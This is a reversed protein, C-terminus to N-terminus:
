KGLLWALQLIRVASGSLFGYGSSNESTITSETTWTWIGGSLTGISVISKSMIILSGVAIRTTTDSCSVATLYGIGSSDSTVETEATWTWNGGSLTGVTTIGQSNGDYGVAVCTTSDPCSVSYLYGNGSGDSTIPSEASWTWTGGSFTGDSTIAQGNGDYGVVVCDTSDSCSIADLTDTSSGDTTLAAEPTWSWNGGSLTGITTIGLGNDDNGTGFLYNLQYM